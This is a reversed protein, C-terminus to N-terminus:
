PLILRRFRGGPYGGFSGYGGFGYGPYGYYGFQRQHRDMTHEINTTPTNGDIPVAFYVYEEDLGTIIGDFKQGDTTEVMVYAHIHDKCVDYMHKHHSNM